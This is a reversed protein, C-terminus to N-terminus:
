PQMATPPWLTQTFASAGHEDCSVDAHMTGAAQSSDGLRITPPQM